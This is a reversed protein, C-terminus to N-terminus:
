RNGSSSFDIDAVVGAADFTVVLVKRYFKLNFASGSTEAYAYVAADGAEAKIMPHVYAGAPKGLLQTLQARTTKGKAIEKVKNDDFDTNDTAWSSIFEHGVLTGNHFYFGAARAPTVGPRLPQGATAAYAYTVHQITKENKVVTGDRWPKGMRAVVEAYTTQGNKLSETDPRVFDTGACGGLGILAAAAAVKLLERMADGKFM